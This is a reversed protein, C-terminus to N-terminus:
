NVHWYCKYNMNEICLQTLLRHHYWVTPLHHSPVSTSNYFESMKEATAVCHVCKYIQQCIKRHIIKPETLTAQEHLHREGTPTVDHQCTKCKVGNIYDYVEKEIPLKSDLAM